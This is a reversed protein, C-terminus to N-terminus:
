ETGSLLGTTYLTISIIEEEESPITAESHADGDDNLDMADERGAGPDKPLNTMTPHKAAV